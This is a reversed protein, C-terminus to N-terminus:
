TLGSRKAAKDMQEKKKAKEEDTEADTDAASGYRAKGGRTGLFDEAYLLAEANDKAEDFKEDVEEPSECEKLVDVLRWAM